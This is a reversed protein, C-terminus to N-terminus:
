REVLCVLSLSVGGMRADLLHFFTLPSRFIACCIQRILASFVNSSLYPFLAMIVVLPSILWCKVFPLHQHSDLFLFFLCPCGYITLQSLLSSLSGRATAPTVSHSSQQWAHHIALVLASLFDMLHCMFSNRLCWFHSGDRMEKTFIDALNTKGAVHIVKLTKDQVWERVLNECLEIHRAAKSTM